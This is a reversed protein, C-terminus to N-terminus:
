VDPAVIDDAILAFGLRGFFETEFTLSFLRALALAQIAPIDSTRAPRV